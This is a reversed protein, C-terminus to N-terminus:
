RPELRGGRVVGRRGADEPGVRSLVLGEDALVVADEPVARGPALWVGSGVMARPGLCGGCLGMPAPVLREGVRVRVEQGFGQDMFTAGRKLQAGAGIVGLQVTGGVAAGGEVVAYRVMAQRQVRAKPGLVSVEVDAQEEVVAGDGLVCGRVVAGAGIVVDDGLLCGEVTADRHVSCRRGRRTLTAAVDYPDLSGAALLGGALRLAGLPGGGVLGAWLAPGLGLLNAWLLQTWHRLEFAWRDAVRLKAGPVVEFPLEREAADLDLPPGLAALRAGVDAAGGPALWAVRGEHGTLAWVPAAAASAPRLWCDGGHARGAAVAARLLAASAVTNPGLVIRGGDGGGLGAERAAAERFAALGRGLVVREGPDGALGEVPAPEGHLLLAASM